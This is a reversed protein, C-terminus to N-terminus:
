QMQVLSSLARVIARQALEIKFDNYGYGRADALAASAALEFVAQNAPEGTLVREAKVARWPKTAV